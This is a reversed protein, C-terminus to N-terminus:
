RQPPARRAVAIAHVEASREAARPPGALPAHAPTPTASSLTRGRGPNVPLTGARRRDIPRDLRELARDVEADRAAACCGRCGTSPSRGDAPTAAQRAFRVRREGGRRRVPERAPSTVSRMGPRDQLRMALPRAPDLTVDRGARGDTRADVQGVPRQAQTVQRGVRVGRQGREDAADERHVVALSEAHEGIEVIRLVGLAIRRDLRPDRPADERPEVVRARGREDRRVIEVDEDIEGAVGAV